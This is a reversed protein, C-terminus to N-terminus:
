NCDMKGFRSAFETLDDEDVDNDPEFDASCNISCVGFELSLIALDLGDKKKDNNFDGVCAIEVPLKIEALQNNVPVEYNVTEIGNMGMFKTLTLSEGGLLPMNEYVTNSFINNLDVLAVPSPAGDGVYGSVPYAGEAVEAILLTGDAPTLSDPLYCEIFILDNSFPLIDSEFIRTRITQSQTTVAPFPSVDPFYTTDSSSISITQTQFYYTTDPKLGTVEVKMVGNAEAANKIFISENKVPHPVIEVGSTEITGGLDDFVKIDPIGPENSIWIVSFSRTSVDTVTTDTVVPIGAFGQFATFSVLISVLLFLRIKKNIKIM